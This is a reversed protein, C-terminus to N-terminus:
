QVTRKALDIAEDLTECRPLKEIYAPLGVVLLLVCLSYGCFIAVRKKIEASRKLHTIVMEKVSHKDSHRHRYLDSLFAPVETLTVVLLLLLLLTGIDKMTSKFGDKIIARTEDISRTKLHKFSFKENSALLREKMAGVELEIEREL